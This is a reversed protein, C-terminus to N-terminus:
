PVLNWMGCSFFSFLLFFFRVQQLQLDWLAAIIM